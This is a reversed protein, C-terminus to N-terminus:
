SSSELERVRLKSSQVKFKLSGHEGTWRPTDLHVGLQDLIRTVTQNVIDDVTQASPLLRADGSDRRGAAVLKLMNELHIASLPSERVVLM